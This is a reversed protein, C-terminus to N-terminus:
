LHWATRLTEREGGWVHLLVGRGEGCERRRRCGVEVGGMAGQTVSPGGRPKEAVASGGM